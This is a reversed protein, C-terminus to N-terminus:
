YDQQTQKESVEVDDFMSDLREASMADLGKQRLEASNDATQMVKVTHPKASVALCTQKDDDIFVSGHLKIATRVVSGAYVGRGEYPQNDSDILNYTDADKSKGYLLPLGTEKSIKICVYTQDLQESTFGPNDKTHKDVAVEAVQNIVDRLNEVDEPNQDNLDIRIEYKGSIKSPKSVAQFGTLTGGTVFVNAFPKGEEFETRISTAITM